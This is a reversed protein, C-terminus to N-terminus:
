FRQGVLVSTKMRVESLNVFSGSIPQKVFDKTYDINHDPWDIFKERFLVTESRATMRGFLAWSPRTLEQIGSADENITKPDLPSVASQHKFTGKFLDQALSVGKARAANACNRGLWLYVESGFDLVYAKLPFSICRVIHKLM